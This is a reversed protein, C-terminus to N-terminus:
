KKFFGDINGAYLHYKERAKEIIKNSDLEGQIHEIIGNVWEKYYPMDPHGHRLKEFKAKLEVVLISSWYKENIEKSYNLIWQWEGLGLFGRSQSIIIKFECFRNFFVITRSYENQEVTIETGKPITINYSSYSEPNIEDFLESNRNTSKLINIYEPWTLAKRPLNLNKHYPDTSYVDQGLKDKFENFTNFIIEAVELYLLELHFDSINEKEKPKIFNRLGFPKGGYFMSYRQDHLELPSLSKKNTILTVTFLKEIQESKLNFWITLCAATLGVILAPLLQAWLKESARNNVALYTSIIILGALYVTFLIIVITNMKKM